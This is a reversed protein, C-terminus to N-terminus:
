PGLLARDAVTGDEVGRTPDDDLTPGLQAGPAPAVALEGGLTASSAQAGGQLIDNRAAAEPPQEVPQDGFALGALVELLGQPAQLRQGFSRLRRRPDGAYPDPVYPRLM